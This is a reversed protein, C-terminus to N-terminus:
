FPDHQLMVQAGRKPHGLRSPFTPTAPLARFAAIFRRVGFGSLVGPNTALCREASVPDASPRKLKLM